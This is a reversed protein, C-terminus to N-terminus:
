AFSGAATKVIHQFEAVTIRVMGGPAQQSWGHELRYSYPLHNTLWITQGATWGELSGSIRGLTVEGSKDTDLTTVGSASGVGCFWNGRFRGTDVPSRQILRSAIELAAKRTLQEAKGKAGDTIRRLQEAFDAM